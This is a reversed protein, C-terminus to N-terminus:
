LYYMLICYSLLQIRCVWFTNSMGFFGPEIGAAIFCVGALYGSFKSSSCGLIIWGLAQSAIGFLLCVKGGFFDLLIGALLDFAFSVASAVTFVSAIALHKAECEIVGDDKEEYEKDGPKCM